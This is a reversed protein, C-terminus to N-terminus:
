PMKYASAVGSNISIASNKCAGTIVVKDPLLPKGSVWGSDKPDPPGLVVAWALLYRFSDSRTKPTPQLKVLVLKAWAIGWPLVMTWRVLSSSAMPRSNLVSYAMNPSALSTSRWSSSSSLIWAPLARGLFWTSCSSILNTLSAQSAWHIGFNVDSSTGMFGYRTTQSRICVTSKSLVMMVWSDPLALSYKLGKQSARAGRLKM